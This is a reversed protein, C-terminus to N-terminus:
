GFQVATPTFQSAPKSKSILTIARMGSDAYRMLSLRLLNEAPGQNVKLAAFRPAEGYVSTPGRCDAKETLKGPGLVIEAFSDGREADNSAPAM